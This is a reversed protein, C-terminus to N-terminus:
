FRRVPFPSRPDAKVLTRCFAVPKDRIECEPVDSIVAGSIIDCPISPIKVNGKYKSRLPDNRLNLKISKTYIVTSALSLFEVDTDMYLLPLSSPKALDLEMVCDRSAIPAPTLAILIQPKDAPATGKGEAGEKPAGRGGQGGENKMRQKKKTAKTEKAYVRDPTMFQQVFVMGGAAVLLVVAVLGLFFPNIKTKPPPPLETPRAQPVELPYNEAIHSTIKSAINVCRPTMDTRGGVIGVTVRAQTRTESLMTLDVEATVNGPDAAAREEETLDEEEETPVTNQDRVQFLRATGRVKAETSDSTDLKLESLIATVAAHVSEMDGKFRYRDIFRSM